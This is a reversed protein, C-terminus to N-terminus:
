KEDEKRRGEEGEKKRGKKAKEKKRGKKKKATSPNSNLVEVVQAMGVVRKVKSKEPLNEIKGLAPM